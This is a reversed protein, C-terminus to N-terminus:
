YCVSVRKVPQKGPCGPYAPVLFSSGNQIKIFFSIIPTTTADSPGYAFWKCRTESLYGRWCSTALYCGASFKVTPLANSFHDIRGRTLAKKHFTSGTPLSTHTHTHASQGDSSSMTSSSSRLPLTSASYSSMMSKERPTTSPSLMSASQARTPTTANLSLTDRTMRSSSNAPWCLARMSASLKGCWRPLVLMWTAQGVWGGVRMPVPFSYRGFHPSARGSPLLSTAWEM